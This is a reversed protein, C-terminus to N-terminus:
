EMGQGYAADRALGDMATYVIDLAQWTRDWDFDGMTDYDTHMVSTWEGDTNVNGRFNISAADIGADSFSDHDSSGMHRVAYALGEEDPDFAQLDSIAQLFARSACNSAPASDEGEAYGKTTRGGLTDCSLAIDDEWNDIVIVDINFVALIRDREAQPLTAVYDQSGQHGTEEATFAIFRLEADPYPEQQLFRRLLTMVMAVGSANDRAGPGITDYHAGVILINPESSQAKRIGIVDSSDIVFSWSTTDKVACLQLTGDEQSCGLDRYAQVMYALAKAQGDIAMNRNGIGEVLDDMIYYYYDQEEETVEAAANLSLCLLILLCTLLATIRKM